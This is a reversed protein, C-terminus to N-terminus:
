NSMGWIIDSDKTDLKELTSGISCAYNKWNPKAEGEGYHFGAAKLAYEFRAFEGFMRVSLDNFQAELDTM